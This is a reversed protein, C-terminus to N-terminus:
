TCTATPRRAARERMAAALRDGAAGLQAMAQAWVSPGSPESLESPDTM